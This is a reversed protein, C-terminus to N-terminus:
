YLVQVTMSGQGGPSNPVSGPGFRSPGAGTYGHHQGQQLISGGSSSSGCPGVAARQPSLPAAALGRSRGSTGQARPDEPQLQL